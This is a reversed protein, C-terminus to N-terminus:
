SCHVADAVAFGAANVDDLGFHVTRFFGGKGVLQEAANLVHQLQRAESQFHADHILLAAGRDVELLADAGGLITDHKDIRAEQVTRTVLDM